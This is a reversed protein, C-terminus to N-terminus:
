AVAKGHKQRMHAKLGRTQAFERGCEPCALPNVPEPEPAVVPEPEPESEPESTVVPEPELALVPEPPAAASVAVAFGNRILNRALRPAICVEAGAGAHLCPKLLRIRVTPM